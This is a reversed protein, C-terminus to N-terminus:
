KQRYQTPTLGMYKKFLMTFYSHSEYGVLGAIESITLDTNSLLEKAKQIKILNNYEFPRFGTYKKFMRCFHEESIGYKAAIDSLSTQPEETFSHLIASMMDMKKLSSVSSFEMCDKLKLLMSYLSVSLDTEASLARKYQQLTNYHNVFNFKDSLYEIWPEFDFFGKIGSGNFTIYLTEWKKCVSHYEHPYNAPLYFLSNEKLEYTNGNFFCEGQGSITYLLQYDEIGLPRHVITQYKANGITAIYFPMSKERLTALSLYALSKM